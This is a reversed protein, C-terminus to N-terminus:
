AHLHPSHFYSTSIRFLNLIISQLAMVVGIADFRFSNLSAQDSATSAVTYWWIIPDKIYRVFMLGYIQKAQVGQALEQRIRSMNVQNRCLM